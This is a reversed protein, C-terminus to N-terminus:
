VNIEFGKRQVAKKWKMLKNRLGETSEFMVDVVVAFLFPSLVSIQNMEMNVEFLEPIDFFNIVRTKAGKYLDGCIAGYSIFVDEGNAADDEADLLIM